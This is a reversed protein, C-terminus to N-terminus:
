DGVYVAASFIAPRHDSRGELQRMGADDITGYHLCAVEGRYHRRTRFEDAEHRGPLEESDHNPSSKVHLLGPLDRFFSVFSSRHEASHHSSGISRSSLQNPNSPRRAVPSLNPLDATPIQATARPSGGSSRRLEGARPPSVRATNSSSSFTRKIKSMENPISDSNARPRPQVSGPRDADRPLAPDFTIKPHAPPSALVSNADLLPHTASGSRTRISLKSPRSLSRSPQGGPLPQLSEMEEPSRTMALSRGADRSNIRRVENEPPPTPPLPRDTHVNSRYQTDSSGTRTMSLRLHGGLNAFAHSLRNFTRNGREAPGEGQVQSLDPSAEPDPTV